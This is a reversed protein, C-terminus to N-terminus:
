KHNRAEFNLYSQYHEQTILGNKVAEKVACKPESLHRCNRFKCQLALKDIDAFVSPQDKHYNSSIAKFGPTDLYYAHLSPLSYLKISTTTHKGKEDGKRVKGVQVLESNTLKNLLTSKGVGSAGIVAITQDPKFIESVEAITTPIKSSVEKIKLSPYAKKILQIVRDREATFDVKSLLIIPDHDKIQFTELYRELKETTFHQNVAIMIVINDINSALLQEKKAKKFSKRALSSAKSLVNSRPLIKIINQANYDIFDGVLASKYGSKKLSKTTLIGKIREGDKNIFFAKNQHLEIIRGVNAPNLHNRKCFSNILYDLQM